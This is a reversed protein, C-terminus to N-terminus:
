RSVPWFRVLVRGILEDEAIPGYTRSDRSDSRNDGMLFVHGRPVTIPGFYVSDTLRHDVYPEAVRRGNVKLYGDYIGLRDGPLAVIRKLAIDRDPSHFVALDGRHPAGLRYALKNVLVQDGPRLTPEMSQSPIRFPEAVFVVVLVLALALVAVVAYSRRFGNRGATGDGPATADGTGPRRSAGGGPSAEPTGDDKETHASFSLSM